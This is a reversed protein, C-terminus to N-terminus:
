FTPFKWRLLFRFDTKKNGPILDNGGGTAERDDAYAYQAIRFWCTLNESIDYCMSLLYRSGTGSFAPISFAYLVDNEYAYIRNLYDPADFFMVRLDISFPFGATKYGIDQWAAFGYSPNLQHVLNAEVTTKFILNGAHHQLQYRLSIKEKLGIGSINASKLEQNTQVKEYKLKWNMQNYRDPNYQTYLLFDSGSSPFDTGFRLWPFTYIDAYASIKWKRFPILEVGTYCARENIIDSNESFASAFSNDFDASYNRYIWALNIRSM